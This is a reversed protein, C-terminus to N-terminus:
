NRVGPLSPYASRGTGQILASIVAQRNQDIVNRRGRSMLADVIADREPGRAISLRGIDEAIQDANATANSQMLARAVSRAARIGLGAVTTDTPPEGAKSVDDLFKGFRTGMATDSGRTVRNATDGFTTERDIASLAQDANDQGFLMSLKERNWDGEGRVINRLATTDNAKTGIARHIEGLASQRMRTPVASPGIQMGQPQSGATLAEDLEVPRMASAENNLIPRGTGLAERQRALESFNADIEKIRPVSRTLADDIMQRADTLAGIVKPNQETELIGDIAQRTQFAVSPDNTVREGGFENLMNRVNILQRQADGRITSIQRDLDNTIPTFDYPTREQLAPTYQRGVQEQSRQLERDIASPVPDPGLSNEVDGRLRTNALASRENLPDVIMSRTGPRTAAGRAVGQWNPSVDALMADPGLKDLETRYYGLLEPDALEKTVYKQGEKTLNSLADDSEGILAHVIANGVKKAGAAVPMLAVGTVAGTAGELGAQKTRAVADGEGAGFGQVLGTGAGSAATTVIRAPLTAGTNGLVYSAVKPAAKLAGVGSGVGGAIQLAGSSVPHEKDFAEDKGRQIDLAQDYREQWTKGRLKQFSEPLLPDVLPALTANTAADLEDLYSGVGLAGRAVARTTNDISFGGDQRNTMKDLDSPRGAAPAAKLKTVAASAANDDPAEIEFKQGNVEVEYTPM